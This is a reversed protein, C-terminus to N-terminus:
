FSAQGRATPRHDVRPLPIGEVGGRPLVEEGGEPVVDVIPEILLHEHAAEQMVLSFYYYPNSSFTDPIKVM